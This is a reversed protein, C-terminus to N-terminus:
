GQPQLTNWPTGLGALLAAPWQSQGDAVRLRIGSWGADVRAQLPEPPCCSPHLGARLGNFRPPFAWAGPRPPAARDQRASGGALVLQASGDWGTGRPQLLLLQGSSAHAVSDGLWHAPAFVLLAPLVGACAGALAWGWMPRSAPGPAPRAPRVM